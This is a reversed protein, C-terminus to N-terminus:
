SDCRVSATSSADWSSSSSSSSSSLDSRQDLVQIAVSAAIALPVPVAEIDWPGSHGQECPRVIFDGVRVADALPTSTPWPVARAYRIEGDKRCRVPQGRDLGAAGFRAHPLRAEAMNITHTCVTRSDKKQVKKHERPRGNQGRFLFAPPSSPGYVRKVLPRSLSRTSKTRQFALDLSPL